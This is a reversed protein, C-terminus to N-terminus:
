PGGMLTYSVYCDRSAEVLVAMPTRDAAHGADVFLGHPPGFLTGVDDVRVLSLGARLETGPTCYPRARDEPTMEAECWSARACTLHSRYDRDQYHVRYPLGERGPLAYGFHNATAPLFALGALAGLGVLVVVSVVM